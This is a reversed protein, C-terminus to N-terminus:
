TGEWSGQTSMTFCKNSCKDAITFSVFVFLVSYLVNQNMKTNTNSYKALLDLQSM